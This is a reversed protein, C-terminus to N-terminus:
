GGGFWQPFYLSYVPKRGARYAEGTPSLSGSATYLVTAPSLTNWGTYKLRSVLWAPEPVDPDWSVFWHVDTISLRAAHKGAFTWLGEMYGLVPPLTTAYLHGVETLKVSYGPAMAKHGLSRAWDLYARLQEWGLYAHAGLWEIQVGEDLADLFQVLWSKDGRAGWYLSIGGVSTPGLASAKIIRYAESYRNAWYAPGEGCLDPENLLQYPREFTPKQAQWPDLSAVAGIDQPWRWVTPIFGPDQMDAMTQDSLEFGRWNHWTPWGHPSVPPRNAVGWKVSSAARVRTKPLAALGLMATAGMIVTRRDM